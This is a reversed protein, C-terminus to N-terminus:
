RRRQDAPHHGTRFSRFQDKLEDLAASPRVRAEGRGQRTM